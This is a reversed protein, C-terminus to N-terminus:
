VHKKEEEREKQWETFWAPKGFIVRLCLKFKQTVTYQALSLILQIQEFIVYPIQFNAWVINFSNLPRLVGYKIDIEASEEIFTGFLRDWIILIGAYNKDLYAENTAHHVRHHSPTNLFLELFGMRHILKTHIWYQGITNLMSVLIMQETPILFALPLYFISSYIHQFWSQRLAVSLNYEESQHHVVHGSWLFHLEHSFRHFWYYAFDMILMALIFSLIPFENQGLTLSSFMGSLFAPSHIEHFCRDYLAVLFFKTVFSLVLMGTGLSLNAITDLKKYFQPAFFGELLLTIVFFPIVWFILQSM